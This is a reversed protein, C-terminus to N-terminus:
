SDYKIYYFATGAKVNPHLERLQRGITVKYPESVQKGHEPAKIEIEERALRFKEM